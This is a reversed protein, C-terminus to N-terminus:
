NDYFYRSSEARRINNTFPGLEEIEIAELWPASEQSHAPLWINGNTSAPVKRRRVRILKVIDAHVLMLLSLFLILLLYLIHFYAMLAATKTVMPAAAAIILRSGSQRLSM